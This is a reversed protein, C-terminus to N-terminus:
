CKDIKLFNSQVIVLLNGALPPRAASFETGYIERKRLM